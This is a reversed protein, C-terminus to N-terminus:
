YGALKFFVGWAPGMPDSGAMNLPNLDILYRYSAYAGAKIYPTINVEVGASPVVYTFLDYYGVGDRADSVFGVGGKLQLLPHIFYTSFPVTGITTGVQIGNLPIDRELVTDRLTIPPTFTGIHFGWYYLRDFAWGIEADFFAVQQQPTTKLTAVEMSLNLYMDVRTDPGILYRKGAFLILFTLM